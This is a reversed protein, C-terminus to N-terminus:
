FPFDETQPTELKLVVPKRARQHVANGDVFIARYPRTPCAHECAGCGVCIDATVEPIVLPRGTRGAYPVMHVAKTPCHESCAGCNTEDTVVVCNERVFVARGLQTLKKDPLAIPLIAGTPCVQSCATCDYNCYGAHFNLRPQLLGDSGYELVAPSLVQSPCASVCLHCGTCISSFREVGVSGPPSVPCTRTEVITTPRSAPVPKKTSVSGAAPPPDQAQASGDPWGALGGVTLLARVLFNRRDATATGAPPEAKWARGFEVADERCVTLCNGCMVCRSTDVRLTRVDICGAKCVRECRGCAVCAERNLRIRLWSAASLLGLLAGVPCLATCWLRGHGRVLWYMGSLLLASVAVAVPTLVAWERRVVTYLGFQEFLMALLNNVTIVAPRALDAMIRGFLSFPDLLNLLLGSGALALAVVLGLVMYRLGNRPQSFRFKRRSGPARGFLDQLTGLPCITSCYVRGCLVTLGLVVVFGVSWLAAGRVFQLLSPVFQLWLVSRAAKPALAHDLDVFLFATGLLMAMALVVRVLKLHKLRM